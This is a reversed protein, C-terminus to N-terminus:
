AKTVRLYTLRTALNAASGADITLKGDTVTVTVTKTSFANAALKVASLATTGEVRVTNTTAVSSDGVGVLVTYTGNAVAVEWKGGTKVGVSTDVVQNASKNRDFAADAHSVNWGYTYGNGRNGYVAGADREYGADVTASATTFDVWLSFGAPVTVTATTTVSGVTAKLTATGSGTTPATYLGASTVTGVGATKTWTATPTTAMQALFQDVGIVAFQQTKGAAVTIASPSAVMTTLVQAVTVSVTANVVTTGDSIAVNFTYAGAKGFTAATTAATSGNAGFTVAPAGAPVTTTSWTYTLGAGVANSATLTATTSNPRASSLSIPLANAVQFGVAASTGATGAVEATWNAATTGVAARVVLQTATRSVVTVNSLVGGTTLNRLIVASDAGFNTGTITLDQKFASGNATGPNVSSVTPAPAAPSVAWTTSADAILALGGGDVIGANGASLTLVYQGAATTAATLNGVSYTTGDATTLTAGSLSVASGDRALTLDSLDFGSVARTFTVTLSDVPATRPTAVPSVQAAPPATPATSQTLRVDDVFATNDGGSPNLGVIALAHTGASLTFGTTVLTQYAASGPTFRGVSAGDIRVDLVQGPSFGDYGAGRQAAAFQVAYTGGAAIAVTQSLAGTMQVFAVQAGEPAAPNGSTFPSANGSVGASGAFTWGDAAPNYRFGGAGVAPNEFGGNAALNGGTPTPTPTPTAVALQIGDILATQDGGSPNLGVIAVTHTGAPLAFAATSLLQYNTSMPALTGVSTGDVRVDLVQGTPYGEGRNAVGASLVYTGAAASQVTQSISGNFQILGVQVGEPAAPNGAAFAGGNAVVGANGAFTWGSGAPRYQFAGPSGTVSASEFGGDAISANTPTPTPTPGAAVAFAVSTGAALPNGAADAIGSGAANLTLAYQGVATTAASLNGLTFAVNDATTLTAGSLPAASGDRTLSLDALDFGAVPKSFAFMVSDVPTTRPSPNVASASVTPANADLAVAFTGIPGAAAFNGATDAVQGAALAITYTGNNAAKWGGAPAPVTYTATRGTGAAASSVFTATAAYGNPGTVTIDGTNLTAADIGVNDAYAVTVTQATTGAATVTPATASATPPVTELSVTFSGIVAAPAYNGLTDAVQSASLSITYTGNYAAKWGGAPAAASYVATRGTGNAASSVFAATASYGNPGTVVIDGTNLTTADVAVNDAYAVTVTAGATGGATVTPASATATPPTLDTTWTASAGAALANGAADAIGSGTPNLALAYSGGAATSASLNGLTFTLNDATTLTAGALSVASGNRTLVLDALDFGAVAESFTFTLASVPTNRVTPSVASVAVTPPTTELTVNFTVIAKGAALANGAKDFVQGPQVVVSYVGNQSSKWGGVPAALAYTAYTATTSNAVFTKVTPQDYGNPGVVRVDNNDLTNADVGSVDFFSIGITKSGPTGGIATPSTIDPTDSWMTPATVDIAVRFSGIAGSPLANGNADTVQGAVANVWYTGNGAATWGGAPPQVTYTAMLPSGPAGTGDNTGVLTVAANFGNPGTVRLDGSDLSPLIGAANDAYTVTFAQANVSGATVDGAQVSATPANVAVKLTGIKGAPVAVASTTLVQGAVAAISLSGGAAAWGGAPAPVTYTVVRQTPDLGADAVTASATAVVSGNAATVVVDGADLTSGDISQQGGPTTGTIRVDDFFATNDGGASNLGVFAVSHTGAAVTFAPTTYTAYSTGSPTFTGVVQGDVLVQFDQATSFGARQAAQFSVAYTGALWNDVSQGVTGDMQLFAVQGGQPASPNLGTFGSGNGSVGATGGFTWGGGTPNYQFAYYGPDGVSPTEFGANAPSVSAVLPPMAAGTYTVTVTAAAANGAVSPAVAAAAPVSPDITVAFSGIAGATAPKATADLVEGPQVVVSYLGNAAASWGKADPAPVTYTVVRKTGEGNGTMAVFTAAASYGNPGIVRVDGDGITALNLQNDDSYTVTVTQTAAGGITLNPAAASATPGALDIRGGAFGTRVYDIVPDTTYSARWFAKSQRRAEALFADTTAPGGQTANYAAAGRTPDPFAGQGLIATPEYTSQWTAASVQSSGVKFWKSSSSETLSSDYRNNTWSESASNFAPGHEVIAGAFQRQLDNNKVVLNNIGKFGSTGVTYASNIYIGRYWAYILNGDLTLDNIGVQATPNDASPVDLRITAFSKQSDAAFVNNKVLTGGGNAASKLNALELGYGRTAGNIDSDELFVNNSIEGSVGGAKAAGNVYGFSMHIPNRLFVNNTVLGGARMQLGHSSANAIVNNAVVVNTNGANIYLNHNYISAVAGLSNNEAWGNHDLVNGDITLGSVGEAYIGESTADSSPGLTIGYQDVNPVYADLIENRRIKVDSVTGNGAQIALNTRYYQFSCDEVLLNTFTGLVNIGYTGGNADTKIATSFNANPQRYNRNSAEFAVGMIYVNSVPATSKNAGSFGSSTGSAVKPRTSTPANPDTYAGIVFPEQASRGSLNWASLNQNFTDGRRLLIQDPMGTRAITRAKAFTAVPAAASLGDNTDSGSAAVYVFRSDASPTVVTWGNADVSVSLMQRTELNECLTRSRGPYTLSAAPRPVPAAQRAAPRLAPHRAVASTGHSSFDVSSGVPRARFTLRNNM